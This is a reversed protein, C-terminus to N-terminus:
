PRPSASQPTRVFDAPDYGQRKLEALWAQVRAEPPHPDRALIWGWRRSPTGILAYDYDKGLGVVWYDGWFLQFGLLSVFSVELRAKSLPDVVRAVGQAQDAKGAAQVCRNTVSVLGDERLAYDATTDRACSRQFFNPIVAIEYWLGMYRELDVREVPRPPEAGVPAVVLGTAVLALFAWIRRRAAFLALKPGQRNLRM